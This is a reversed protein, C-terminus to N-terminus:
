CQQELGKPALALSFGGLHKGYRAAGNETHMKQPYSPFGQELWALGSLEWQDMWEIVQAPGWRQNLETQRKVSLPLRGHIGLLTRVLM